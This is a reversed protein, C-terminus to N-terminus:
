QIIDDSWNTSRRPRTGGVQRGASTAGSAWPGEPEDGPLVARNMVLQAKEVAIWNSSKDIVHALEWGDAGLQGLAEVLRDVTAFAGLDLVRYQWCRM